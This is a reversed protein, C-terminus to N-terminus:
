LEGSQRCQDLKEKADRFGPDIKVVENFLEAAREKDDTRLLLDAMEYSLSIKEQPDLKPERLAEDFFKMAGEYNERAIECLGIQYYASVKKGEVKSCLMFEQIADDILGMERYAIGLDFHTQFDDASISESIGKKFAAFVEGIETPVSKKLEEEAFEESLEAALDFFDDASDPRDDEQVSMKMTAGLVEVKVEKNKLNSESKPRAQREEPVSIGDWDPYKAKLSAMLEDAEHNLGQSRFFEIEELAQRIEFEKDGLVEGSDNSIQIGVPSSESDLIELSAEEIDVLEIPPSDQLELEVPKEQNAVEVLNAAEPELQSQLSQLEEESFDAESLIFEEGLEAETQNSVESVSSESNENLSLNLTEISSEDDLEEPVVELQENLGSVDEDEDVVISIESDELNGLGEIAFSNSSGEDSELSAGELEESVAKSWDPLEKIKALQAIEQLLRQVEDLLKLEQCVAKLKWRLALSQPFQQLSLTLVERAKDTLGYKLYVECESIIKKEQPDLIMQAILADGPDIADAEMARRVSQQDAKKAEPPVEGKIRQELETVKETENNQRYIKLLELDVARAKDPQKMAVFTSSLLELIDPNYPDSRFAQQLRMLAKKPEGAKSYTEILKRLANLDKPHLSVWKEYVQIIEPLHGRPELNEVLRELTEISDEMKSESAFLEALKLQSDLNNPDLDSVKRLVDLLAERDGAQDYFDVVIKFHNMADSILGLQGYLSALQEHISILDSKAAGDNIKLIRKYIAIAKSYFGDKTYIEGVRLLNDLAKGYESKKLYIDAAKNLAKVDNSDIRIIRELAELAKENQGRLFAKEAAAFLKAKDM